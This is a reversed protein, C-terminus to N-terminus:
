VATKKASTKYKKAPTAGTNTGDVEERKDENKRFRKVGKKHKGKREEHKNVENSPGGNDVQKHLDDDGESENGMVIKKSNQTHRMM